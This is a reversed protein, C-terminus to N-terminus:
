MRMCGAISTAGIRKPPCVSKASRVRRVSQDSAPMAFMCNGTADLKHGKMPRLMAGAPCRYVDATADYVFAELTFRGQAALRKNRNAQPVYAVIADMECAKLTEGNYYGVDALARLTEVGLAQKAALAMAYLQGNDNGDNVVEAQL